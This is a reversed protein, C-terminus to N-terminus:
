YWTDLLMRGSFFVGLGTCPYTIVWVIMFIKEKFIGGIDSKSYKKRSKGTSTVAEDKKRADASESEILIINLMLIVFSFFLWAVLGLWLLGGLAM